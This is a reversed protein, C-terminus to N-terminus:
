LSVFRIPPTPCIELAETPAVLDADVSWPQPTDFRVSVRAASHHELASGRLGLWLGPLEASLRAPGAGTCLFHIRDPQQGASHFPRFGLGVDRVGSAGMITFEERELVEGDIEVKARFPEFMSAALSGGSLASAMARGVVQAAGLAGQRSNSYYAALWRTTVGNGFIMGARARGGEPTVQVAPRLSERLGEGAAIKEVTEELSARGGLSGPITNVTGGAVLAIRPLEDSPWVSLLPTLTGGVTGDGGVIVLTDVGRDRLRELAPAVDELGSTSEVFGEPRLHRVREILEPDRKLRGARSNAIVGTKSM